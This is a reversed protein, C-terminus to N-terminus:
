EPEISRVAPLGVKGALPRAPVGVVTTDPEVDRVVVAGSGVLARDGIGLKQIVSAGLGVHAGFGVRVTGAINAGPAIFAGDAISCDHGIIAGYNAIVGRGITVDTGTIVGPCLISGDGMTSRAGFVVTPHVVSHLRVDNASFYELAAVRKPTNGAALVVSLGSRGVPYQLTGVIPFGAVEHGVEDPDHTLFGEVRGATGEDHMWSLADRGMGKTGYILIATM